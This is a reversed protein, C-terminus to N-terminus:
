GTTRPQGVVAPAPRTPASPQGPAGPGGATVPPITIDPPPQTGNTTLIYCGFYHSIGPINGQGVLPAHYDNGPGGYLNGHPGGKVMVAVQVNPSSTTVDLFTGDSSFGVNSDGAGDVFTAGPFGIEACTNPNGPVCVARPDGSGQACAPGGRIGGGPAAIGLLLGGAGLLLIALRGWHRSRIGAM